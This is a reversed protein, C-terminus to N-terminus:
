DLGLRHLYNLISKRQIKGMTNKPLRDVIFVKQPQQFDALRKSCYKKIEESSIEFGERRVIALAIIEGYKKSPYAFAACEEVEPLQEAVADIDRPYVNM